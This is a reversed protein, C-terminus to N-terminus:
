SGTCPAVSRFGPSYHRGSNLVACLIKLLKNAINNLVLRAPKGQQVKRQFYLEFFTDNRKLSMSALYLLKRMRTPGNKRSTNRRRVSSGSSHEFPCIGLYAALSKESITERFGHSYILVHAALLLGVGPVSMALNVMSRFHDNSDIDRRLQKELEKIQQNLADIQKQLSVEVSSTRVVKRKFANLINMNAQKQGLFHERTVLLSRVHELTQQPAQWLRLQDRYRWAYEAISRADVRDNKLATHMARKVKQPAEVAVTFGAAALEYLVTETYVGTAEMCVISEQLSIGKSQLWQQLTQVGEVTNAFEQLAQELAAEQGIWLVAATFTAAAIDIGVYYQYQKPINM